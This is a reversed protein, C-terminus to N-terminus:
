VVRQRQSGLIGASATVVDGHRLYRPPKMGMGVGAPTGTIVVDGPMLTMFSSLYSVVQAPTFIMDATGSRQMMYDNVRLELTLSQPDPLEDRTVLWPGLPGFGDFSKGKTWQGNRRNQWDRESLDNALCYGAVHSLAQEPAVGRATSGIVLALEVEWDSATSGEPLRIDDHPGAISTVAKTFVVPEEPIALGAELAHARYNLGIALFQRVGAVPAGLRTGEPLLPMRQLDIASLAQLKQPVLWEPTIDPVLLSLDRLRGEADLAGAREAGAPGHRLLKM